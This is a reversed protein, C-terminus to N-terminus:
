FLMFILLRVIDETSSTIGLAVIAGGVNVVSSVLIALSVPLFHQLLSEM